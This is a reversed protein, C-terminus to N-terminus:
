SFTAPPIGTLVKKQAYMITGTTYASPLKLLFGGSADLQSKM